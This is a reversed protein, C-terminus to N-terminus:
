KNFFESCTKDTYVGYIFGKRSNNDIWIFCDDYSCSLSILSVKGNKISQRIISYKEM